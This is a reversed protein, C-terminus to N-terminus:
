MQLIYFCTFFITHYRGAAVCEDPNVSKNLDKGNFYQSLLQQIKPIRTSGGVLVIEDVDGKGWKADKLVTDLPALTRRFFDGCLDEFRARTLTTNFDIGEYLSDIEITTQHTSSLTCKAREAATKLRRLARDNTTLDKKHKRKFEEVFYQVMRNDIDEGGLHNDGGVAMVEFVGDEIRLASIDHTGGGCDFILVNKGKGNKVTENDLGYAMAASTPENLLRIPNVGAIRAANKTGERQENNFYAPVTIVMDTITEGLYDEAIKKAKSIVVSSIEEPRFTKTEGKYEVEYVPQNGNDVVKFSWLKIDEKVSKEDFKRGILRKADFITNKPNGAAQNKAAEGILREQDTFAVYSPYTRNGLDNAIIEVKNNRMVAVCSYTTGLDLGVVYNGSKKTESM